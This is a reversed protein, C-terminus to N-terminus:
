QRPACMPAGIGFFNTQKIRGMERYQAVLAFIPDKPHLFYFKRTYSSKKAKVKAVFVQLTFECMLDHETCKTQKMLWMEEDETIEEYGAMKLVGGKDTKAEQVVSCSAEPMRVIGRKKGESIQKFTYLELRKALFPDQLKKPLDEAKVALFEPIFEPPLQETPTDLFAKVLELTDKAAPAEAKAEELAGASAAAPVALLLLATLISRVM